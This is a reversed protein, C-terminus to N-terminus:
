FFASLIKKSFNSISIYFKKKMPVNQRKPRKTGQSTKDKPCKTRPVNQRKPRKTGPVKHRPVNQRLVNQGKPRKTKPLKTQAGDLASVVTRHISNSHLTQTVYCRATSATPIFHRPCEGGHPPHQQFSTDPASVVTSHHQQFSTDPASM